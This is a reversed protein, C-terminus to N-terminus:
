KLTLALLVRWHALANLVFFFLSSDFIAGLNPSWSFPTFLANVSVSFFQNSSHFDFIQKPYTLNSIELPCVHLYKQDIAPVYYLLKSWLPLDSLWFCICTYSLLSYTSFLSYNLIFGKASVM